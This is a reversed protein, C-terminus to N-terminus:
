SLSASHLSAEALERAAKKPRKPNGAIHLLALTRNHIHLLRILPEFRLEGGDINGRIAFTPAIDELERLVNPHGIDGAHVILDCDSFVDSFHPDLWGHTDSIVGVRAGKVGVKPRDTRTLESM